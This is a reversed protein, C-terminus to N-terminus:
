KQYLKHNVIYTYVAAPVLSQFSRGKAIRHRIHSSSIDIYPSDIRIMREHELSDDTEIGPRNYIVLNVLKLIEHPQKWSTFDNLNDAGMMYYIQSDPFASRFYHLSDVTYSTADKKLEVDSVEFRPFDAIARKVMEYRHHSETIDTRKQFPHMNNPIFITRDLELSDTIWEAVVLHGLHIPDFTGGFLGVRRAQKENM